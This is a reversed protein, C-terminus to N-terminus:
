SDDGGPDAADSDADTSDPKLERTLVAKYRELWDEVDALNDPIELDTTKLDVAAQLEDRHRRIWAPRHKNAQYREYLEDPNM